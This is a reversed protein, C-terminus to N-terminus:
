PDIWKTWTVAYFLCADGFLFGTKYRNELPIRFGGPAGQEQQDMLSRLAQLNDLQAALRALRPKDDMARAAGVGLGTAAMGIGMVIPGSDADAPREKGRPWEAFGAVLGLDRWFAKTYSGYLTRAQEPAVHALFCIRLSLDCGRPPVPPGDAASAQRSYPLGLVSDLGSKDLWELHKQLLPEARKGSTAADHLRISLLCPITDYSWCIGPYSDLPRGSAETLAQGLVDSLVRHLEAYRDDGGARRYAGLALNLTGLYTAHRAYSELRELKGDPPKVKRVVSPIALEILQRMRTISPDKSAPDLLATNAYAFAPFLLPVLDGEPYISCEKAVAARFADPKDLLADFQRSLSARLAALSKEAADPSAPAPEPTGDGGFACRSAIALTAGALLGRRSALGSGGKM